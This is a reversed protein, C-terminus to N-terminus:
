QLLLPHRSQKMRKKFPHKADRTFDVAALTEVVDVALYEAVGVALALGGAQHARGAAQRAAALIGLALPNAVLVVLGNAQGRQDVLVVGRVAKGVVHRVPQAFFYPHIVQGPAEAVVDTAM